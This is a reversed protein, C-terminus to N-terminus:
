KRIWAGDKWIRAKLRSVIKECGALVTGEGRFNLVDSRCGHRCRGQHTHTSSGLPFSPLGPGAIVLYWSISSYRSLLIAGDGTAGSVFLMGLGGRVGRTRRKKMQEGDDSHGASSKM